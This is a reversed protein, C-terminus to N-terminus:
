PAARRGVLPGPKITDPRRHPVGAAELLGITAQDARRRGTLVGVQRDRLEAPTGRGDGVLIRGEQLVHLGDRRRAIDVRLGAHGRMTQRM